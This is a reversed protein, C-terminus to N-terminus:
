PLNRPQCAPERLNLYEVRHLPRAVIPFMPDVLGLRAALRRDTGAPLPASKILILRDAALHCALWAAISDSTVDWSAPLSNDGSREWQEIPLRPALVPIAGTSWVTAMDEVSQVGVTGPLLAALIVATLDMARLALRHATSEGIAHVRDLARVVDAAPGGGAILVIRGDRDVAERNNLFDTMRRRFEPWDFLSGGVKIVSSCAPTM